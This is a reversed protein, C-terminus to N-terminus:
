VDKESLKQDIYEVKFFNNDLHDFHEDTTILTSNLVASTAAIWLDNKGMKRPSKQIKLSYFDIEAYKKIINDDNIDIVPLKKILKDLEKIRRAGWKWQSSLSYIEGVTVVSIVSIVNVDLIKFKKNVYAAYDAGRMIGVLIGTDLVFM